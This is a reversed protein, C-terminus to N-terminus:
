AGQWASLTRWLRQPTLPMDIHRIGTGRLADMVANQIAPAAGITGSEGIGKAGLENLPTPTEQMYTEFSPLECASVIGYDLFTSTMPNGYEDYDFSEMMAQAIGQALGGHIQGEALLPNLITGADDVAVMRLLNVHGTELDVEVVAAHAGFPFTSGEPDFVLEANLQEDDPLAATVIEWGVSRSPTGVVSFAGGVGGPDGEGTRSIGGAVGGSADFVIDETAAELVQAALKRADDIVIDAAGRLAPGGIQISRSGLTGEGRPVEDTDGCRVQVRDLAIGLHDALLMAFTTEHGQGQPATGIRAIVEGCPTIEVSAWESDILPATVEVYTAIGVGLRTRDGSTIREQQETRLKEVSLADCLTDLAAQYNGSDYTAGTPTDFPFRDPSIMNLRRVEIPDMNLEAAFLDVAREIASAAEPRGAGRYAVVPCTNTVWSTGVVEVQEIDYVGGAMLGTMSALIAGMRPYAGCDAAITLRYAQIQGDRSGGIEITQNQARGHGMSQMSETRTECWRIPRDLVQALRGVILEEVGIGIKAGFGGGVDPVIVRIDGEDLGLAMSLHTRAAHPTQTAVWQTLRGDDGVAAVTARPELPCPAVRQNVLNQVVVVECASFLDETAEGYIDFAQNTEAEPFLLARDTQSQGVTVVAELVDYEIEVLESADVAAAVTEAVIAVVPEGVYRVRDKALPWRVMEFTVGLGAYDPALREMGLSEAVFVGIVGTASTAAMVDIGTIIASAVTSRVFVVHAAGDLELNNIFTGNGVLHRHDEVRLAPRGIHSM